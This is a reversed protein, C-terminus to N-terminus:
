ATYGGNSDIVAGTIYSAAPTALFAIVAATEAPDSVRQIALGSVMVELAAPSPPEMDTQMLGAQVM